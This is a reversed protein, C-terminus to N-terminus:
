CFFGDCFMLPACPFMSNSYLFSYINMSSLFYIIDNGNRLEYVEVEFGRHAAYIAALAGVPGAGVVVIKGKAGTEHQGQSERDDWGSESDTTGGITATEGPQRHDSDSGLDSGVIAYSSDMIHLFLIYTRISFIYVFFISIFCTLFSPNRLLSDEAFWPTDDPDPYSASSM